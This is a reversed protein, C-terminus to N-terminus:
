SLARGTVSKLWFEESRPNLDSGRLPNVFPPDKIMACFAATATGSNPYVIDPKFELIIKRLRKWERALIKLATRSRLFFKENIVGLKTLTRIQREAFIISIDKDTFHPM